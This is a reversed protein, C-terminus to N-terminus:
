WMFTTMRLVAFSRRKSTAASEVGEPFRELLGCFFPYESDEVAIRFLLTLDYQPEKDEL